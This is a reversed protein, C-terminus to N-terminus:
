FGFTSPIKVLRDRFLIFYINNNLKKEIDNNNNVNNNTNNICINNIYSIKINLLTINVTKYKINKYNINNFSLLVSNDMKLSNNRVGGRGCFINFIPNGKFGIIIYLKLTDVNEM